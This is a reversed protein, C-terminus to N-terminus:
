NKIVRLQYQGTLSAQTLLIPYIQIDSQYHAESEFISEKLIQHLIELLKVRPLESLLSERKYSKFNQEKLVCGKGNEHVKKSM